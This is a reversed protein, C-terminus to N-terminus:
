PPLRALPNYRTPTFLITKFGLNTSTLAQFSSYHTSIVIDSSERAGGWRTYTVCLHKKLTHRAGEASPVSLPRLPIMTNPHKCGGKLHMPCARLRFLQNTTIEPLAQPTVTPTNYLFYVVKYCIHLDDVFACFFPDRRGFGGSVTRTSNESHAPTCRWVTPSSAVDPM